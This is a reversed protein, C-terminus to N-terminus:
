RKESGLPLFRQGVVTPPRPWARVDFLYRWREAGYEAEVYLKRRSGSDMEITCEVLGGDMRQRFKGTWFRDEHIRALGMAVGSDVLNRLHVNRTEDFTSAMRSQLQAAVLFAAASLVLMVLLVLLLAYARYAHRAPRNVTRRIMPVRIVM